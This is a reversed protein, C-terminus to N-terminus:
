SKGEELEILCGFTDKPHMFVVPVGHAGTKAEGLVRIKEQSVKDIAQFLDPVEFCLHHLGGGPNKEIFKSIPSGDGLSALLELNTNALKVFVTTVGHEPLDLPASVEAGLVDRYFTVAATLDPVAIAVHNLREILSESGIL